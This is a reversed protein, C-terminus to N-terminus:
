EVARARHLVDVLEHRVHERAVRVAEGLARRGVTKPLFGRVGSELARKLYGPRGHSTIILSAAQPQVESLHVALDIGNRLLSGALKGGVNGLGIFGIKM